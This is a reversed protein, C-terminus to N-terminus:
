NGDALTWLDPDREFLEGAFGRRALYISLLCGALGAGVITISRTDGISDTRTMARFTDRGTGIINVLSARPGSPSAFSM